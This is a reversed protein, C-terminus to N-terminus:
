VCIMDKIDEFKKEGIGSVNMIDEVTEFPTQERYEIIKEATKEGVGKLKVLDEIGATNINVMLKESFSTDLTESVASVSIETSEPVAEASEAEIIEVEPIDASRKEGALGGVILVAAAAILLGGSLLLRNLDKESGKM